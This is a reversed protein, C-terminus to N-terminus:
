RTPAPGSKAVTVSRVKATKVVLTGLTRVHSVSAPVDPRRSCQTTLLKDMTKTLLNLHHNDILVLSFNLFKSDMMALSIM